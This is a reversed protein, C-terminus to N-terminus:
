TQMRHKLEVNIQETAHGKGKAQDRLYLSHQGRQSDMEVAVYM